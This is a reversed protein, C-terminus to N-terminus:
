RYSDDIRVAAADIKFAVKGFPSDTQAIELIGSVAIPKNWEVKASGTTVQVHVIQNAPPPPVHVCMGAEPVLLFEEVTDYEDAFPVMYGTLKIAAGDLRKLDAATEGTRTNLGRLARWEIKRHISDDKPASVPEEGLSEIGHASEVPRAREPEAEVLKYKPTCAALILCLAALPKM